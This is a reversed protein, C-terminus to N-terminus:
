PEEPEPCSCAIGLPKEEFLYRDPRWASLTGFAGVSGTVDDGAVVWFKKTWNKWVGNLELTGREDSHGRAVIDANPPADAYRVLAYASRPLLGTATLTFNGTAERFVLKGHAGNKLISWNSPNKAFLLLKRKGGVSPSTLTTGSASWVLRTVVCLQASLALSFVYITTLSLKTM